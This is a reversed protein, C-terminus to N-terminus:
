KNVEIEIHKLKIKVFVINQKEQRKQQSNM